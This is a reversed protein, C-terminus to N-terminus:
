PSAPEIMADVGLFELVRFQIDGNKKFWAFVHYHGRRRQRRAWVLERVWFSESTTRARRAAPAAAKKAKKMAKLAKMAKPAAPAAAKKATKMAKPAKMAKLMTFFSFPLECLRKFRVLQRSGFHGRINTRTQMYTHVM